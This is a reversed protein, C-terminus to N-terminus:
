QLVPSTPLLALTDVSIRSVPLEEGGDDDVIYDCHIIGSMQGGFRALYVVMLPVDSEELAISASIQAGSDDPGFNISLAPFLDNKTTRRGLYLMLMLPRSQPNLQAARTILAAPDGTFPIERQKLIRKIRGEPQWTQLTTLRAKKNM